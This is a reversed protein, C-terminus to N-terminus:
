GFITRLSGMLSPWVQLVFAVVVHCAIAAALGHNEHVYSYVIGLLGMALAVTALALVPAHPLFYILGTLAYLGVSASPSDGTAVIGRFFLEELPAPVLCAQYFLMVADTTGYLRENFQRLQEPLFALIPLSIVLGLLAGRGLAKASFRLEVEHASRYYMALAGLAVFLVALRAPQGLPLTAVGAGALALFLLYPESISAQPRATGRSM